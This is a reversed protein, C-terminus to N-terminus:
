RLKRVLVQVPVKARGVKEVAKRSETFGAKKYFGIAGANAVETKAFLWVFGRKRAGDAAKRLLRSGIGRGTARELVVIGSLEAERDRMLKVSAFGVIVKAEEAVFMMTAHSALRRRLFEPSAIEKIAEDTAGSFGMAGPGAERWAELFFASLPTVDNQRAPRVEARAGAQM